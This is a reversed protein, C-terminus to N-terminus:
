LMQYLLCALLLSCALTRIRRSEKKKEHGDGKSAVLM